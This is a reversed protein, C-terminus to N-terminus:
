FLNEGAEIRVAQNDGQELSLNVNDEIRIKTFPALEYHQTTIDGNTRLCDPADESDCAFCLIVIILFLKKMNYVYALDLSLPKPM